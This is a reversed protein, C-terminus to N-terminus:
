VVPIVDHSAPARVGAALIAQRIEEQTKPRALTPQPQTTTPRKAAPAHTAPVPFRQLTILFHVM